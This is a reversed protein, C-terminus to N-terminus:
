GAGGPASNTAGARDAREEEALYVQVRRNAAKGLPTDEPGAPRSSGRPIVEVFLAPLEAVLAERVANARRQSLTLADQESVDAYGELIVHDVEGARERLEEILVGLREISRPDPDVGGDAFHVTERLPRPGALVEPRMHLPVVGNREVVDQGLPGTSFALFAAIEDSPPGATYLAVDHILPYHGRLVHAPTPSVPDSTNHARLALVKGTRQWLPAMGIAGPDEAIAGAIGEADLTEADPRIGDPGCFFDEFTARSGSRRDRVVVRVKRAELGLQSWDDIVGTCFLDRVQGYTLSQLPNSPHSQVSIANLGVLHREFTWGNAHAQDVEAPIPPRSSAALDAEGSLLAKFGASSGGGRVEFDLVGSLQKHSDVLAPVLESNLTESGVIRVVSPGVAADDPSLTAASPPGCGVLLAVFPYWRM